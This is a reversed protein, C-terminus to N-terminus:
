HGYTMNVGPDHRESNVYQIKFYLIQVQFYTVPGTLSYLGITLFICYTSFGELVTLSRTLRNSGERDSM